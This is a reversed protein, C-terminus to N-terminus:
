RSYFSRYRKWLYTIFIVAPLELITCHLLWVESSLKHTAALAAV